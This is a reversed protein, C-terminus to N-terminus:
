RLGLAGKLADNLKAKFTEDLMSRAQTKFAEVVSSLEKNLVDVVAKEMLHQVREKGNYSDRGYEDVKKKLFDTVRDALTFKKGTPEGWTSHERWGGAIVKCVEADLERQCIRQVAEDVCRDITTRIRKQHEESLRAATDSAIKDAVANIIDDDTLGSITIKYPVAKGGNIPLIPDADDDFDDSM